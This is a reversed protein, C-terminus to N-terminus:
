FQHTDKGGSGNSTGPIIGVEILVTLDLECKQNLIYAKKKKKGKTKKQSSLSQYDM